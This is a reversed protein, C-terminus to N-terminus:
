SSPIAVGWFSCGPQGHVDIHAFRGVTSDRAVVDLDVAIKGSVAQSSGAENNDVAAVAKDKSETGSVQLHAGATALGVEVETGTCQGTVTVGNGLAALAARPAGPALTATFSTAGPGQPGV